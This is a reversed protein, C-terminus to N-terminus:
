NGPINDTWHPTAVPTVRPAAIEDAPTVRAAIENAVALQLAIERLWLAYYSGDKVSNVDFNRIQESTM